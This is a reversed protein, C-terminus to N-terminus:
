PLCALLICHSFLAFLLVHQNFLHKTKNMIHVAAIFSSVVCVERINFRNDVAGLIVKNEGILVPDADLHSSSATSAFLVGRAAAAARGSVRGIKAHLASLAM